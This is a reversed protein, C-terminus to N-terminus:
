KIGQGFLLTFLFDILINKKKNFDKRCSIAVRKNYPEAVVQRLGVEDAWTPPAPAGEGGEAGTGELGSDQRARRLRDAAAQEVTLVVVLFSM